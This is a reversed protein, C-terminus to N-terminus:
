EGDIRTMSFEVFRMGNFYKGSDKIEMYCPFVEKDNQFIVSKSNYKMNILKNYDDISICGKFSRNSTIWEGLESVPYKRGICSFLTDSKAETAIVDFDADSMWVRVYNNKNNSDRIVIGETYIAADFWDSDSYGQNYSRVAYEYPKNLAVNVDTFGNVYEGIIESKSESNDRRVVFIKEADSPVNCLVSVSFDNNTSIVVGEPASPKSPNLTFVASNWNSYIGLNNLTRMEVSYSGDELFVPVKFQMDNGPKMGSDYILDEAKRIVMQWSIQNQSSWVVVPFCDQSVSVIDPATSPGTLIFQKEFIAVYGNNATTTIRYYIDGVTFDSVDEIGMLYSNTNDNFLYEKRVGLSDYVELKNSTIHIDEKGSIPQTNENWEYLSSNWEFNIPRTNKLYVDVPYIPLLEIPVESYTIKLYVDEIKPIISYTYRAYTPNEPTPYVNNNNRFNIYTYVNHQYIDSINNNRIALPSISAYLYEEDGIYYFKFYDANINSYEKKNWQGNILNYEATYSEMGPCVLEISYWYCNKIEVPFNKFEINLLYSFSDYPNSSEGTTPGLKAIGQTIKTQTRTTGYVEQIAYALPVNLTKWEINM